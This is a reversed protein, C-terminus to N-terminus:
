HVTGDGDDSNTEVFERMIEPVSLDSTGGIFVWEDAANDWMQLWSGYGM